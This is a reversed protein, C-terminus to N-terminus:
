ANYREEWNAYSIIEGQSDFVPQWRLQQIERELNEIQERLALITEAIESPDLM